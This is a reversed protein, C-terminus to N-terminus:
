LEGLLAADIDKTVNVADFHTHGIIIEEGVERAVFAGGNIFHISIDTPMGQDSVELHDPALTFELNPYMPRLYELLSRTNM